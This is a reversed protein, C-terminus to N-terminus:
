LKLAEAIFTKLQAMNQKGFVAGGKTKDSNILVLSPITQIGASQAFDADSENDMDIPIVKFKNKHTAELKDVLPKQSGCHSCWKATFFFLLPMSEDKYRKKVLPFFASSPNQM